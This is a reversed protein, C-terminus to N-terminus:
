GRVGLLKHGIQGCNRCKGKFQGSFLAQEELQEGNEYRTSKM